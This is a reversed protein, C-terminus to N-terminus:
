AANLSVSPLNTLSADAQIGTPKEYKKNQKSKKQPSMHKKQTSITEETLNISKDTKGM